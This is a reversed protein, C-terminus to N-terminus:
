AANDRNVYFGAEPFLRRAAELESKSVFYFFPGFASSEGFLRLSWPAPQPIRFDHLIEVKDTHTRLFEHRQRIWELQSQRWVLGASIFGLVTVTVLLTRLSFQPLKMIRM